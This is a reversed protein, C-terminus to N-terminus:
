EPFKGAILDDIAMDFYDALKQLVDIPLHPYQGSEIKSLYSTSIGAAKAVTQQKDNKRNRLALLTQGIEHLKSQLSIKEM